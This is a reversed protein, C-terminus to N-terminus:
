PRRRRRGTKTSAEGLSKAMYVEQQMKVRLEQLEHYHAERLSAQRDRLTQIMKEKALLEEDKQKCLTELGPLFPIFIITGSAIFCIM